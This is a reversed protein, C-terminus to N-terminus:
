PLSFKINETLGTAVAGGERGAREKGEQATWPGDYLLLDTYLSALCIYHSGDKKSLSSWELFDNYLSKIV